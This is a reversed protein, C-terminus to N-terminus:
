GRVGEVVLIVVWMGDRVRGAKRKSREAADMRTGRTSPFAIPKALLRVDMWWGECVTKEGQSVLFFFFM